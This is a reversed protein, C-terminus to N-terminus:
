SKSLASALIVPLLYSGKARSTDVFAKPLAAAYAGFSEVNAVLVLSRFIVNGFIGDPAILLTTGEDVAREIEIGYNKACHGQANLANTLSEAESLMRDVKQSRGRDELRGGSIVAPRYPINLACALRRCHGAIAELEQPSDGEDIGVPSLMVLRGGIELISVRCLNPCDFEKRLWPIVKNSSLNGRVAADVAREKLLSVLSREASEDVILPIESGVVGERDVDKRVIEASVLVPEVYKERAAFLLSNILKEASALTPDLGVAVKARKSTAMYHLALSGSM